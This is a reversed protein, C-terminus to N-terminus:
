IGSTIQEGKEDITWGIIKQFYNKDSKDKYPFLILSNLMFGGGFPYITCQHYGKLEKIKHNYKDYNSAPAIYITKINLNELISCFEEIENLMDINGLRVGEAFVPFNNLFSM